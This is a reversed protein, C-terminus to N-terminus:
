PGENGIFITPSANRPRITRLVCDVDQWRATAPPRFHLRGGDRLPLSSRPVHCHRAIRDRQAPSLRLPRADGSHGHMTVALAAALAIM